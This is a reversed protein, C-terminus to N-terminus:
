SAKDLRQLVCLSERAKDAAVNIGGDTDDTLEAVVEELAQLLFARETQLQDILTEHLDCATIPRFAQRAKLREVERLADDREETCVALDKKLKHRAAQLYELKARAADLHKKISANSRNSQEKERIRDALLEVRKPDM